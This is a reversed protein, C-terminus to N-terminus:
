ADSIQKKEKSENYSSSLCLFCNFHGIKPGKQHFIGGAFFHSLVVPEEVNRRHAWASSVVDMCWLRMTEFGWTNTLMKM